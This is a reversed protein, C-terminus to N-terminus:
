DLCAQTALILEHHSWLGNNTVLVASFGRKSLSVGEMANAGKLQPGHCRPGMSCFCCHVHELMM